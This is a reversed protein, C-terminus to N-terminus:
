HAMLTNLTFHPNVTAANFIMFVGRLLGKSEQHKQFAPIIM